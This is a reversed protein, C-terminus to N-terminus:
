IDWFIPLLLIFVLVKLSIPIKPLKELMKEIKKQSEAIIGSSLNIIFKVHLLKFKLFLTSCIM